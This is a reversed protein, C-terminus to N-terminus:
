LLYDIVKQLAEKPQFGIIREVEQGNKFFILTPISMVGFSSATNPNEDVNLKGVALKGEYDKAIEEVVPALMRCPACWSAWFDVMVLQQSNKITEQFNNDTLVIEAM